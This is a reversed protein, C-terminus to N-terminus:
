RWSNNKRENSFCKEVAMRSIFWWATM